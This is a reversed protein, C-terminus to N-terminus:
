KKGKKKKKGSGAGGTPPASKPEVAATAERANIDKDVSVDNGAIADEM